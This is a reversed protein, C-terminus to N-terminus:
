RSIMPGLPQGGLVHAHVHAVEQGADPGSNFILRYGGDEVGEVRAVEAAADLLEAALAPDAAVLAALDAHHPKTIVLTHVPAKPAIDRFALTDATEHVITAPIEGAVIRCFLCDDSM